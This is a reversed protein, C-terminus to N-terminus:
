SKGMQDGDTCWIMPFYPSSLHLWFICICTNIFSAKLHLTFVIFAHFSIVCVHILSCFRPWYFRLLYGTKHFFTSWQWLMGSTESYILNPKWFGSYTNISTETVVVFNIIKWWFTDNKKTTFKCYHFIHTSKLSSQAKQQYRIPCPGYLKLSCETKNPTYNLM